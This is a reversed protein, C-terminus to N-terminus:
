AQLFILKVVFIPSGQVIYTRKWLVAKTYLNTCQLTKLYAFIVALTSFKFHSIMALVKLRSISTFTVNIRQRAQKNKQWIPRNKKVLLLNELKFILDDRAYDTVIEIEVNIYVLMPLYSDHM